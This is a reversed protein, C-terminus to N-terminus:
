RPLMTCDQERSADRERPEQRVERRGDRDDSQEKDVDWTQLLRGRTM